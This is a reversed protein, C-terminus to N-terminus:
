PLLKQVELQLVNLLNQSAVKFFFFFLLTISGVADCKFTFM